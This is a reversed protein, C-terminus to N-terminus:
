VPRQVTAAAEAALAELVAAEVGVELGAVAAVVQM